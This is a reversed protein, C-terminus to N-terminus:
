VRYKESLNAGIMVGPMDGKRIKAGTQEYEVLSKLFDRALKRSLPSLSSMLSHIEDLFPSGEDDEVPHWPDTAILDAPSTQLARAIKELSQQTYATRGNEIHHINSATVGIEAALKTQTMERYQRWEGIFHGLKKAEM